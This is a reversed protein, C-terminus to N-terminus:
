ESSRSSILNSSIPFMGCLVHPMDPVNMTLRYLCFRNLDGIGTPPSLFCGGKKKLESTFNFKM